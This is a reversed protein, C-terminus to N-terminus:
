SRFIGLAVSISDFKLTEQSSVIVTQDINSVVYREGGHNVEDCGIMKLELRSGKM